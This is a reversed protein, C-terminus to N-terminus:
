GRSCTGGDSCPPTECREERGCCTHGPAREPTRSLLSPASLLKEMGKSGCNKCSVVQDGNMDTLYESVHGCKRCRYEYIPM